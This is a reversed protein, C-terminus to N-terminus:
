PKEKAHKLAARARCRCAEIADPSSSGLFELLAAALEDHADCARAIFAANAEDEPGRDAYVDLLATDCRAVLRYGDAGEAYVSTGDAFWGQGIPTHQTTM